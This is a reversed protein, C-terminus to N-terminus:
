AGILRRERIESVLLGGMAVRRRVVRFGQRELAGAYDPLKKVKLGTTLWFGFYLFRVLAWALTREIGSEPLGFESIVWRAGADCREAVREVLGNLEDNEFCDLFFHTVVLDYKGEFAISRADGVRFRVNKSFGGVRKSAMAIMRGSLDVSEVTAGSNRRVFEATFRGDGDGLILVHRADAVDNLYELRRRELAQGFELYELARYWRAIGDCNM